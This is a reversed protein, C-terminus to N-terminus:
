HGGGSTQNLFGLNEYTLLPHLHLVTIGDDTVGRVWPEADGASPALVSQAPILRMGVVEDVLLGYDTEGGGVVIVNSNEAESGDDILLLRTLVVSLLAGRVSLVGALQPECGPLPVLSSPVFRFVEKAHHGRIAFNQTGLRFVLIDLLGAAASADDTSKALAKARERLIKKDAPSAM